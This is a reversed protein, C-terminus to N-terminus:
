QRSCLSQWVSFAVPDATSHRGHHLLQRTLRPGRWRRLLNSNRGFAMGKTSFLFMRRRSVIRCFSTGIHYKFLCYIVINDVVHEMKVILTWFSVCERIECEKRLLEM